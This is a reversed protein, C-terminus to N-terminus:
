VANRMVVHKIDNLLTDRTYTWGRKQYWEQQDETYLFM